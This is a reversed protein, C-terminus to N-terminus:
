NCIIRVSRGPIYSSLTKNPYKYNSLRNEFSIGTLRFQKYINYGMYPVFKKTNMTFDWDILNERYNYREKYLYRARDERFKEITYSYKNDYSNFIDQIADIEKYNLYSLNIISNIAKIIGIVSSDKYNIDKENYLIKVFNKYNNNLYSNAKDSLLTNGYIELFIEAKEKLNLNFDHIIYLFVISRAINEINNEYIYFNLEINKLLKQFSFCNENKNSDINIVNQTETITQIVHRIDNSNNILINLNYKCSSSNNNDSCIDLKKDFGYNENLNIIDIINEKKLINYAPTTGWFNTFGIENLKEM